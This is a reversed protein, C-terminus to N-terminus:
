PIFHFNECINKIKKEADTKNMNEINEFIFTVFNSLLIEKFSDMANSDFSYFTFFVLKESYDCWCHIPCYDGEGNLMIADGSNIPKYKRFGCEVCIHAYRNFTFHGTISNWICEYEYIIFNTIKEKDMKKGM